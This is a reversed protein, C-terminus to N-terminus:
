YLLLVTGTKVHRECLGEEHYYIAYTYTGQPCYEGKYKGDWSETNNPSSFMLCGSRNYIYVEDIIMTKTHVIQFTNNIDAKPMICNAVFLNPEVYVMLFLYIISDCGFDTSLYQVYEGEESEDFGHGIYSESSSITAYITDCSPNHVKLDLTVISDCGYQTKLYQTIKTAETEYFGNQDYAEGKCIHAFITDDYKPNVTLNLRVISDCGEITQLTDVYIGTEYEFFGNETYVESQCMTVTITTDYTPNITVTTQLITDLVSFGNKLKWITCYIPYTGLGNYSHTIPYGNGATGDGFDWIVNTPIYDIDLDFIFDSNANSCIKLGDPYDSVYEENVLLQPPMEVVKFGTSYAYSEANSLGYVHAIFGSGEVTSISKLVHTGRDVGIRAYSFNPNSPVAVFQSSIDNDDLRMYSVNNTNTVINVFHNDSYRTAFTVDKIKQEIPVMLVMSPDGNEGAYDRGTLYLYVSAPKSTELYVAPTNSNIEFEYTQYADIVALIQGDKKIRCNDKSATIRVRDKTRMKSNTIMFRRGWYSTPIMQEYLHDGAGHSSPINVVSNGAFVAIKKNDNASITTGSFDITDNDGSRVQYCEGANLTISFLSDANNGRSNGSLKINVTTSDETGVISFESKNAYTQLIYDSGLSSTPLVKGVGMTAPVYNSVYLSITDTTVIHWCNRLICDSATGNFANNQIEITTFAGPDVSFYEPWGVYPNTIYGTCSTNGTAVLTLGNPYVGYNPLFAVWFDTGVTSQANLNGHLLLSLVVAVFIKYFKNRIM